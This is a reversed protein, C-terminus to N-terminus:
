VLKGIMNLLERELTVIPHLGLHRDGRRGDSRSAGQDQATQHLEPSDTMLHQYEDSRAQYSSHDCTDKRVNLPVPWTIVLIVARRM